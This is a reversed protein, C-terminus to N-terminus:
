SKLTLFSALEDVLFSAPEVDVAEDLTVVLFALTSILSLMFVVITVPTIGAVEETEDDHVWPMGDTVLTEAMDTVDSGTTATDPLM